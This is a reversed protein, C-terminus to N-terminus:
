HKIKEYRTATGATGPVKRILGAKMARRLFHSISGPAHGNLEIIPIFDNSSFQHPMGDIWSALANGKQQQHHIPAASIPRGSTRMIEPQIGNPLAGLIPGLMKEDIDNIIIKFKATM